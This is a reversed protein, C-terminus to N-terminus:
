PKATLVWVTDTDSRSLVVLLCPANDTALTSIHGPSAQEVSQVKYPLSSDNNMSLKLQDNPKLARLTAELQITWPISVLRCATSSADVPQASLADANDSSIPFVIGGPLSISM